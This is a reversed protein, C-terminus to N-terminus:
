ATPNSIHYSFSRGGRRCFGDADRAGCDWGRPTKGHAVFRRTWRRAYGCSVRSVRVTLHFTYGAVAVGMHGCSQAASASPLVLAVAVIVGIAVM